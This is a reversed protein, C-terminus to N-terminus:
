ENGKGAIAVTLREEKVIKLGMLLLGLIMNLPLLSTILNVINKLTEKERKLRTATHEKVLSLKKQRPAGEFLSSFRPKSM